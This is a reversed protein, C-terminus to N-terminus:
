RSLPKELDGKQCTICRDAFKGDFCINKAHISGPRMQGIDVLKEALDMWGELNDSDDRRRYFCCFGFFFGDWIEDDYCEMDRPLNPRLTLRFGMSEWLSWVEDYDEEEFDTYLYAWKDEMIGGDSVLKLEKFRPNRIKASYALDELAEVSPYWDIQSDRYSLSRITVKEIMPCDRILVSLNDDGNIYFARSGITLERLSFFGLLIPHPSRHPHYIEDVEPEELLTLREIKTAVKANVLMGVIEEPSPIKSPEVREGSNTDLLSRNMDRSDLRSIAFEVLDPSCSEILGALGKDGLWCNGLKLSTIQRRAGSGLLHSQSQYMGGSANEVRLAELGPAARLFWLICHVPIGDLTRCRVFDPRKPYVLALKKLAPLSPERLAHPGWGADKFLDWVELPIRANTANYSILKEWDEYDTMASTTNLELCFYDEIDILKVLSAFYESRSLTLALGPLNIGHFQIGHPNPKGIVIHQYLAEQAVVSLRKCTKILNLLATRSGSKVLQNVIERLVENPLKVLPGRQVVVQSRAASPISPHRVLAQENNSAM